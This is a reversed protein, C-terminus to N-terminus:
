HEPQKNLHSIIRTKTIKGPSRGRCKLHILNM